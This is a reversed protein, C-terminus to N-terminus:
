VGDFLVSDDPVNDVLCSCVTWESACEVTIVM